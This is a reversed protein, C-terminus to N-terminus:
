PKSRAKNMSERVRRRAEEPNNRRWRASAERTQARARAPNRARWRRVAAAHEELLAYTPALMSAATEFRGKLSRAIAVAEAYNISM